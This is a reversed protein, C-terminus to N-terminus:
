YILIQQWKEKQREEGEGARGETCGKWSGVHKHSISRDLLNSYTNDRKCSVACSCVEPFNEEKPLLDSIAAHDDSSWSRTWTWIITNTRSGTKWCKSRSVMQGSARGPPWSQACPWLVPISLAVYSWLWEKGFPHPAREANISVFPSHDRYGQGM